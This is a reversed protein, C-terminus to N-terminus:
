TRLIGGNTLKPQYYHACLSVTYIAEHSDSLGEYYSFSRAKLEAPNVKKLIADLLGLKELVRVANPGSLHDSLVPHPLLELIETGVWVSARASRELSRRCRIITDTIFMPLPPLASMGGSRIIASTSWRSVAWHCLGFWLRRWRGCRGPFEEKSVPTADHYHNYPQPYHHTRQTTIPQILLVQCFIYLLSGQPRFVILQPESNRFPFRSDHTVSPM